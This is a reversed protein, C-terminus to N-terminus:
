NGGHSSQDVSPDRTRSRSKSRSRSSSIAVVIQAHQLLQNDKLAILEHLRNVEKYYMM